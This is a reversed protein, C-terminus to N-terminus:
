RTTPLGLGTKAIYWASLAEHFTRWASRLGYIGMKRLSSPGQSERPPAVTGVHGATSSVMGPPM